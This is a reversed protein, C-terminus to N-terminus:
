ILHYMVEREPTEDSSSNINTEMCAPEKEQREYAVAGTPLRDPAVM